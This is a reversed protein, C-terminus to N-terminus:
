NNTLILRYNSTSSSGRHSYIKIYYTGSTLTINCSSDTNTSLTSGILTGSANYVIMDYDTGDPCILRFNKSGAGSFKYYDVDSESSLTGSNWYGVHTTPANTQTDNNEFEYLWTRFEPAYFGSKFPIVLNTTEAFTTWTSSFLFYHGEQLSVKYMSSDSLGDDLTLYTYYMKNSEIENAATTGVSCNLEDDGDLFQTDIYSDPLESEYSTISTAYANDDYNYFILDHEFTDNSANFESIGQENWKM